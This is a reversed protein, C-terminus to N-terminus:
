DFGTRTIIKVASRFIRAKISAAELNHLEIGSLCLVVVFKDVELEVFLANSKPCATEYNIKTNIVMLTNLLWCWHLACKFMHISNTGYLSLNHNDDDDNNKSIQSCTIKFDGIM